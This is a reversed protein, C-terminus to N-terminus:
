SSVCCSFCPPAFHGMSLMARAAHRDHGAAGTGDAARDGCPQCRVVGHNDEVARAIDHNIQAVRIIYAPGCLEHEKAGPIRSRPKPRTIKITDLVRQRGGPACMSAYTADFPASIPITRVSATPSPLSPTATVATDGPSVCVGALVDDRRGLEGVDLRV